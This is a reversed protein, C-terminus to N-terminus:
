TTSSSKWSMWLQSSSSTESSFGGSSASESANRCREACVEDFYSSLFSSLPLCRSRWTFIRPASPTMKAAGDKQSGASSSRGISWSIRAFCLIGYVANLYASFVPWIAGMRSCAPVKASEMLSQLAAHRGGGCRLGRWLLVDYFLIRHQELLLEDVAVVRLEGARVLFAALDGGREHRAVQVLEQHAEVERSAEGLRVRQLVRHALLRPLHHEVGLAVAVGLVHAGVHLGVEPHHQLALLPRRAIRQRAGVHQEEGVGAAEGEHLPELEDALLVVALGGHEVDGVLTVPLDARGHALVHHPLQLLLHDRGELLDRPHLEVDIAQALVHLLRLLGLVVEDGHQLRRLLPWARDVAVEARHVVDAGDEGREAAHRLRGPIVRDQLVFHQFPHFAALPGDRGLAVIRALLVA